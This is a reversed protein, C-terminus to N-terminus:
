GWRLRGVTARVGLGALGEPAAIRCFSKMILPRFYSSVLDFCLSRVVYAGMEVNLYAGLPFMGMTARKGM